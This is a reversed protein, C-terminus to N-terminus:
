NGTKEGLFEDSHFIRSKDTYKGGAIEAKSERRQYIPLIPWQQKLERVLGALWAGTQPEMSEEVKDQHCGKLIICLPSLGGLWSFFVSGNSFNTPTDRDGVVERSSM